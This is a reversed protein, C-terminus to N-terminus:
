AFFPSVIATVQDKTLPEDFAETVANVGGNNTGLASIDLGAQVVNDEGDYSPQTFAPLGDRSNGTIWAKKGRLRRIESAHRAEV